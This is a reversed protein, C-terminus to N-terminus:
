EYNKGVIIKVPSDNKEPIEESKKYNELKNNNFEAVFAELNEKTVPKTFKYKLVESSSHVLM